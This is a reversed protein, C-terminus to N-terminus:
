AITKVLYHVRGSIQTSASNSIIFAGATTFWPEIDYDVIAGTLDTAGDKFQITTDVTTVFWIKYILNQKGAPPASLITNSASGTEDIAVSELETYDGLKKYKTDVLV